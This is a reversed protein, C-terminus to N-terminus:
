LLEKFECTAIRPKDKSGVLQYKYRVKRGIQKDWWDRGKNRLENTSVTMNFTRKGDTLTVSGVRSTDALMGSRKGSRRGTATTDVNTNHELPHHATIIAEAYEFRKLKVLYFEKLTSRNEKGPKQPYAVGFEPRLMLGEYGQELATRELEMLDKANNLTMQPLVKVYRHNDYLCWMRNFMAKTTMPRGTHLGFTWFHGCQEFEEAAAPSGTNICNQARNFTDPANPPGVVLEGDLGELKRLGLLRQVAANRYALGKRSVVRAGQVMGRYGDIKVSGLLPYPLADLDADVPLTAALLPKWLLAM